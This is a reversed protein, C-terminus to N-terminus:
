EISQLLLGKLRMTLDVQSPKAVEFWGSQLLFADVVYQTCVATQHIQINIVDYTFALSLKHMVEALKRDNQISEM